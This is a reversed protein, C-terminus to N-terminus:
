SGPPLAPIPDNAPAIHRRSSRGLLPRRCLACALAFWIAFTFSLAGVVTLVQGLIASASGDEWVRYDESALFIDAQLQRYTRAREGDETAGAELRAESLEFHRELLQNRVAGHAIEHPALIRDNVRQDENTVFVLVGILFVGVIGVRTPLRVLARRVVADDCLLGSLMWLAIPISLCHVAHRGPDNLIWQLRYDGADFSVSILFLVYVVLAFAPGILSQPKRMSVNAYDPPWATTFAGTDRPRGRPSM